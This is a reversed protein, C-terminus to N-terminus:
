VRLRVGRARLWGCAAIVVWAVAMSRLAGSVADVGLSEYLPAAGSLPLAIAMLLGFLPAVLYVLLPNEGATTVIRPWRTWRRVDVLVFLVTWAAATFGASLLCWAPTAAPKSIWFAPGLDKFAHLVMGATLLGASFSVGHRVRRWPSAGPGSRVILTFAAGSTVLAGLSGFVSGVDIVDRFGLPSLVGSYRDAFFAAYLVASAGILAWPREGLLLFLSAGALYAWGILGLIGWWHPRLQVLGGAEASRYTVAAIVLLAVGGLMVARQRRTGATRAPAYWAMLLGCSVLVNWANVPFGPLSGEEGNVMFVGMVVLGLSRTAVHRWIALPREGRALRPGLALPIAMGAIFLFAPFVVDTVTMGDVGQRVHRLFAPTDRVGAMENVFLMLVVDLGRLVDLSLLRGAAALSPAAGPSSRPESVAM